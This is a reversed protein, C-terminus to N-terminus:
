KDSSKQCVSQETGSLISREAILIPALNEAEVHLYLEETEMSHFNKNLLPKVSASREPQGFSTTVGSITSLILLIVNFSLLIFPRTTVSAILRKVSHTCSMKCSYKSMFFSEARITVIYPHVRTYNGHRFDMFQTVFHYGM